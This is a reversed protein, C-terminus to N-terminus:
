EGYPSPLPGGAVFAAINDLVLASMARRAEDTASGVHPTLVCNPADLLAQPVNPEDDFVDLGAGAIHGAQLAAALAASDVVPGRAVNVLISDPGLAALVDANVLGRTEAGGAATVFLVDSHQALTVADPHYTDPSDNKESRATYAVPMGLGRLLDALQRGIRGYGLIGARGALVSRGLALKRGSAWDGARVFRDGEAIRRGAALALGLAMEAVALSLVGPTTTVRIGRAVAAPLDIADVGVGSVAILRLAPLQDMQAPSLGVAGSTLVIQAQSAAAIDTVVDYTDHLKQAMDAPKLAALALVMPRTM